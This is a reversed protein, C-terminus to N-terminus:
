LFADQGKCSFIGEIDTVTRRSSRLFSFPIRNGEFFGQVFWKEYLDTKHELVLYERYPNHEGCDRGVSVEKM